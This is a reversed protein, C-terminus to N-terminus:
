NGWMRRHQFQRSGMRRHMRHSSMRRRMMRREMRVETITDAPATLASAPGVVAASASGSYAIAGLVILAAPAILSKRMVVEERAAM